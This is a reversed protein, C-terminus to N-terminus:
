NLDYSPWCKSLYPCTSGYMSLCPSYPEPSHKTFVEKNILLHASFLSDLIENAQKEPPTEVFVLHGGNRVNNIGIYEPRKGTIIQYAYAYALLQVNHAVDNSTFSSMSTKHDAIIVSGDDLEAVIDIYGLLYINKRGGYKSPMKVPNIIQDGKKKSIPMEIEVPNDLYFPSKYISCIYKAESYGGIFDEGSLEIKGELYASLTEVIGALGMDEYSRKWDSTMSPNSAPSGDRKRIADRGKYSPSARDLLKTLGDAYSDMLEVITDDVADGLHSSQFYNSCGADFYCSLPQRDEKPTLYFLELANHVLSGLLTSKSSSKVRDGDVYEYKYKQSCTMYTKLRSVSYYDM